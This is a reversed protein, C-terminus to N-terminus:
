EVYWGQPRQGGEWLHQRFPQKPFPRPSGSRFLCDLHEAGEDTLLWYFDREADWRRGTIAALSRKQADFADRQVQKLKKWARHDYHITVGGEKRKRTRREAAAQLSAARALKSSQSLRDNPVVRYGPPTDERLINRYINREKSVAKREADKRRREIVDADIPPSIDELETHFSDEDSAKEVGMVHLHDSFPTRPM